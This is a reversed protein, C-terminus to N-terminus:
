FTLTQQENEEEEDSDIDVIRLGYDQELLKRIEKIGKWKIIEGRTKGRCVDAIQSIIIGGKVSAKGSFFGAVSSESRGIAKAVTAVSYRKEKKPSSGVDIIKIM